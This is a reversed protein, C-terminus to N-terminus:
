NNDLENRRLEYATKLSNLKIQYTVSIDETMEFNLM